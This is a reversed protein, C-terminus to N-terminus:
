AGFDLQAAAYDADEILREKAWIVLNAYNSDLSKRSYKRKKLHEAGFFPLSSLIIQRSLSEADQLTKLLGRDNPSLSGHVIRSRMDYVHKLRERDKAFTGVGGAMLIAAGRAAITESLNKENKTTLIREIATVYKVLRSAPFYDRLAEGYWAAADLFRQGLPSPSSIDAGYQIAIGMKRILRDAGQSTITTLWDQGFSPSNWGISTSLRPLSADTIEITSRIDVQFKQGGMRMKSSHAGTLLHLCDLSLQVIRQAHARSSKPGCHPIKVEAIWDFSGYYGRADNALKNITRANSKDLSKHYDKYRELAADVYQIAIEKRRFTVPGIEFSAPQTDSTVNCPILHTLTEISKSAHRIAAGVARDAEKVSVENEATFRRVIEKKLTELVLEADLRGSFKSRTIAVDVIERLRSEAVAGITLHGIGGPHPLQSFHDQLSRKRLDAIDMRLFRVAESLVFAIEDAYTGM